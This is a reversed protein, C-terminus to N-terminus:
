ERPPLAARDASSPTAGAAGSHRLVIETTRAIHEVILHSSKEVDRALAAELIMRHEGDIDRQEDQGMPSSWRRYLEASDRISKAIAKLRTNRCGELLANHFAAHALAWQESFAHPDDPQYKPTQVMVHHARVLDAEWTVDGEAVARRVVLSEIECRADTLERLDEVSISVVSFGQQPESRVLGQETLRMLVERLTGSSTEYQACVNAFPLREGPKLRGSLIDGRVREYVASTARRSAM